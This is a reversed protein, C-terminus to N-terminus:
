EHCVDSCHLQAGTEQWRCPKPELMQIVFHRGHRAHGVVPGLREVLWAQQHYQIRRSVSDESYSM